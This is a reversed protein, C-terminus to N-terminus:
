LRLHRLLEEAVFRNTRPGFHTKNYATDAIGAPLSSISPELDVCEIGDECFFRSM